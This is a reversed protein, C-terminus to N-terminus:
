QRLSSTSFLSLVSHSMEVMSHGATLTPGVPCSFSSFQIRLWLDLRSSRHLFPCRKWTCKVEADARHIFEVSICEALTKRVAAIKQTIAYNVAAGATSFMSIEQWSIYPLFHMCEQGRVCVWVWRQVMSSVNVSTDGNLKRVWIDITRIPESRGYRCCIFANEKDAWFHFSIFLSASVCGQQEAPPRGCHCSDRGSM